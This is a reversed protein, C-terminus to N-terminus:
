DIIKKGLHQRQDPAGMGPPVIFEPLSTAGPPDASLRDHRHDGPDAGCKPFHGFLTQDQPEAQDM